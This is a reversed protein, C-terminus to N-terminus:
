KKAREIQLIIKAFAAEKRHNRKQQAAFKAEQIGGMYYRWYWPFVAIIADFISYTTAVRVGSYAIIALLTPSNLANRFDGAYLQGAGPLIASLWIATKDKPHKFKRQRAFIAKIKQHESTGKPILQLFHEEALKYNDKGFYCVAKYFLVRRALLLNNSSPIKELANLAADYSKLAMKCKAKRLRFDNKLSDNKAFFVSKEYYEFALQFRSLEFASNGALAFISVNINTDSFFIVRESQKLAAAYNKNQFLAHAYKQTEEITQSLLLIPTLALCIFPFYKM